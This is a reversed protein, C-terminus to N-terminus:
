ILEDVDATLTAAPGTDAPRLDGQRAMQETALSGPGGESGPPILSKGNYPIEEEECDEQYDEEEEQEEQEEEEAEEEWDTGGEAELEQTLSRALGEAYDVRRSLVQALEAGAGPFQAARPLSPQQRLYEDCRRRLSFAEQVLGHVGTELADRTHIDEACGLLHSLLEAFRAGANPPRRPAPFLEPMKCPPLPVPKPAMRLMGPRTQLEPTPAELAPLRARQYGRHHVLFVHVERSRTFFSAKNAIVFEVAAIEPVSGSPVADSLDSPHLVGKFSSGRAAAHLTVAESSSSLLGSGLRAAVELEVQAGGDVVAVSWELRGQRRLYRPEGAKLWDLNLVHSAGPEIRLVHRHSEAAM